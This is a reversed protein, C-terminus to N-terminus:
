KPLRKPRGEGLYVARETVVKDMFVDHQSLVLDDFLQCEYCLGVLICDSRVNALLRDYYGQGNGMRGGRRSFAVGPVIVLDLEDPPVEKGAEGWRERPPELIKWKGVILEDMSELRWLGLRNAGREDVTCYPVVIRKGSAVAVPLVQRTRLESRCDLYWMVASASAYEPLGVVAAVALESVREKEPQAARADYATRRMAAKPDAPALNTLNATSM